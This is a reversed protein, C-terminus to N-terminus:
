CCIEIINGQGTIWGHDRCHREVTTDAGLLGCENCKWVEVIKLGYIADIERETSLEANIAEISRKGPLSQIHNLVAKRDVLPLANHHELLHREIDKPFAVQCPQCIALGHDQHYIILENVLKKLSALNDNNM